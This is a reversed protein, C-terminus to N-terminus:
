FRRPTAGASWTPARRGHLSNEMHIAYTQRIPDWGMMESPGWRGIRPTTDIIPNGSHPTWDIGDPSYYLYAQMPAGTDKTWGMAKFRKEPDTEHLDQFPNAQIGEEQVIAAMPIINNRKSGEFEIQELVPREWNVGDESLALCNVPPDYQGEVIVEGNDGRRGSHTKGQYLMKFVRDDADFFIHRPRVDNGEWPMEPKLVPNNEVKAAPDMAPRTDTMSEILHDDVFLQKQSGIHILAM